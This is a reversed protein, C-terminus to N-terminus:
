RGPGGSRRKLRRLIEALNIEVGLKKLTGVKVVEGVVAEAREPEVSRRSEDDASYNAFELARITQEKAQNVAAAFELQARLHLVNAELQRHAVDGTMLAQAGPIAPLALYVRLAERVVGLAESRSRPTVSFMVRSATRNLEADAGIGLDELFQVFYLLYQSCPERMGEPFDFWYVLSHKRAEAALAGAARDQIVRIRELAGSIADAAVSKEPSLDFEIVVHDSAASARVKDSLRSAIECIERAYRGFTYPRSWEPDFDIRAVLTGGGGNFLLDIAGLREMPAHRVTIDSFVGNLEVLRHAFLARAGPSGYIMAASYPESVALYEAPYDGRVYTALEVDPFVKGQLKLVAEDGADGYYEWEHGVDM